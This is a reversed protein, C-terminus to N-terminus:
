RRRVRQVTWRLCQRWYQLPRGFAGGQDQGLCAGGNDIQPTNAPAPLGEPSPLPPRSPLPLNEPSPPPATAPVPLERMSPTAAEIRAIANRFPRQFVAAAPHREYTNLCQWLIPLAACLEPVPDRQAIEGLAIAAEAYGDRLAECLPLVARSDAIRGLAIMARRRLEDDMARLAQCLPLVARQDGIRGLVDAVNPRVDWSAHQLEECLPLVAKSGLRILAQEAAVQLQLDKLAQCLPPVARANGTKGLAEIYCTRTWPASNQLGHILWSIDEMTAM